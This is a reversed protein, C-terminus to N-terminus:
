ARNCLTHIERVLADIEGPATSAQPSVRVVAALERTQMDLPTFAAQNAAVEIGKAMLHTKVDTATRGQVAFSLLGHEPSHDCLFKVQPITRLGEWIGCTNALIQQQLAEAGTEHFQELATKLGMHLPCSTSPAEFHRATVSEGQELMGEFAGAEQLNALFGSRMYMLGTGKPGRLWKRGPTTLVDCGLVNVDVPAQGVVQSADLFFPVGHANAVAGIAQAPELHGGNSGLWAVSILKVKPSILSKLCEVNTAGRDDSEVIKVIAGKQQALHLMAKLNGGWESRTTLLVDGSKINLVQLAKAWGTTHSDTLTMDSASAGIAKAALELLTYRETVTAQEAMFSGLQAELELQAVVARKTRETIISCGAHNFYNRATM